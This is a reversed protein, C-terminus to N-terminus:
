VDGDGVFADGFGFFGRDIEWVGRLFYPDIANVRSFAGGMVRGSM